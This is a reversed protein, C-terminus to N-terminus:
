CKVIIGKKYLMLCILMWIVMNSSAYFFSAATTNTWTCFDDIIYTQAGTHAMVSDLFSSGIFVLIANKGLITLPMFWRCLRKVEIAHYCISLILLSWGASLTTYSSTWLQKNLPLFISWAYGVAVGCIGALFVYLSTMRDVPRLRIWDFVLYGILVSVIAPITTILGEPDPAGLVIRDIYSALNGELSFDGYGFGPVPVFLMLLWYSVLVIVCCSWLGRKPMALVFAYAFLFSIAIRQLVGMVRINSIDIDFFSNVVLGLIFLLTARRIVFTHDMAAHKDNNAQRARSFCMSAGVIFLFSPFILDAPTYGNWESHRLPWYVDNVPGSDDVLLMAAVALGRFADLCELRRAICPNQRSSAAATDKVLSVVVTKETCHPRASWQDVRHFQERISM